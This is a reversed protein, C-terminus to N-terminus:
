KEDMEKGLCTDLIDEVYKIFDKRKQKGVVWHKSIGNYTHYLRLIDTILIDDNRTM